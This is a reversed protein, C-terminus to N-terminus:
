TREWYLAFYHHSFYIRLVQLGGCAKLGPVLPNFSMTPTFANTESFMVGPFVQKEHFNFRKSINV